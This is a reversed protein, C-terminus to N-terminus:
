WSNLHANKDYFIHVTFFTHSSMLFSRLCFKLLTKWAHLAVEYFNLFNQFLSM